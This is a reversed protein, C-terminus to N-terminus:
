PRKKMLHNLRDYLGEEHPAVPPLLDMFEVLFVRMFYLVEHDGVWVMRSEIKAVGSRSIDFGERQLVVALEEQTWGRQNRLKRIQPGILNLYRM